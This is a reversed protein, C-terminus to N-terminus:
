LMYFLIKSYTSIISNTSLKLHIRIIKMQYTHHRSTHIIGFICNASRIYVQRRHHWKATKWGVHSFHRLIYTSYLVYCVIWFFTQSLQGCVHSNHLYFTPAPSHKCQSKGNFDCLVCQRPPLSKALMKPM